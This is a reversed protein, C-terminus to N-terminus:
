WFQFTDLRMKENQLYCSAWFTLHGPWPWRAIHVSGLSSRLRRLLDSNKGSDRSDTFTLGCPGLVCYTNVWMHNKISSYTPCLGPSPSPYPLPPVLTLHWNLPPCFVWCEFCLIKLASDLFNFSWSCFVCYWFELYLCFQVRCKHLGAEGM